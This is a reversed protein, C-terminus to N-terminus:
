GARPTGHPQRPRDRGSWAAPPFGREETFLGPFRRRIEDIELGLAREQAKIAAAFLRWYTRRHMRPSRDPLPDFVIPGGGLRMRLKRAKSIARNAATASQSRYALGLCRRCAFGSGIALYVVAVRRGCRDCRFWPRAGGFHCQTWTLLVRQTGRTWETSGPPRWAYALQLADNEVSVDIICCAGPEGEGAAEERVDAPGM